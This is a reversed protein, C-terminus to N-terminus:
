IDEIWGINRLVLFTFIPETEPIARIWRNAALGVPGYMQSSAGYTKHVQYKMILETVNHELARYEDIM